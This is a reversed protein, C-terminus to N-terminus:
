SDAKVFDRLPGGQGCVQCQVIVTMHGSEDKAVAAAEVDASGCAPCRGGEISLPRVKV